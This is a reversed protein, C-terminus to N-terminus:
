RGTLLRTGACLYALGGYAYSVVADFKKEDFSLPVFGTPALFM